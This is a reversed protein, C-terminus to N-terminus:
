CTLHLVANTDEMGRNLLDIAEATPLILLEVDRRRAEDEVEPLVPLSGAVGTGASGPSRLARAPPPTRPRAM